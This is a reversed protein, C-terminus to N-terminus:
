DHKKFLAFKNAYEACTLTKFTFFIIQAKAVRKLLAKPHAKQAFWPAQSLWNCKKFVMSDNTTRESARHSPPYPPHLGAPTPPDPKKLFRKSAREQVRPFYLWIKKEQVNLHKM